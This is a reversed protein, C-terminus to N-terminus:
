FKTGYIERWKEKTLYEYGESQFSIAEKSLNYCRLAKYEFKGTRWIYQNSGLALWYNQNEDQESLFKFFDRSMWDYYIFSKDRYEWNKLFNYAMTDILLGGMPVNWKDKWARTMRCLNKLNKNYINNYIRVKEIEPKPNTTKWSGDNNSDPYTYSGDKNLFCPVVEFKIGDTFNIKVIQGDGGIHTAPYTKQLSTKVAQLLASQGNGIYNNYQTYIEYPLVFLMDIDSVHIDTGRGYSGVYLSHNTESFSSYYDINLRKTIRKYRKTIELVNLNSIRINLCFKQFNEAVSM